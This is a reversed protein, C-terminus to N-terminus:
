EDEWAAIFAEMHLSATLDPSPLLCLLIFYM